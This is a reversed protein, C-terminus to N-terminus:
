QTETPLKTFHIAWGGEVRFEGLRRAATDAAALEDIGDDLEGYPEFELVMWFTQDDPLEKFPPHVASADKKWYCLFPYYGNGMVYIQDEGNWHQELYQAVPRLHQRARPVFLRYAAPIALGAVVILLVALLAQRGREWRSLMRFASAAGFGSLLLLGPVLFTTARGDMPYRGITAAALCLLTPLVLAGALLRKQSMWLGRVGAVCLALIVVGFPKAAYNCVDYVRGVMWVPATYWESLDLLGDDWYEYLMGYQQHRISVLYLIGFSIVPLLCIIACRVISGPTPRHMLWFSLALGGFVFVMTESFWLIAATVVALLLLRLWHRPQKAPWIWIALLLTTSMADSSYQKFEGAHILLTPGFAALTTVLLAAGPSLLKRALMALLLLGVVSCLMPLLRLTFESEGAAQTLLDALILFAPPATQAVDLAGILEGPSRRIVNYVLFSEDHWYSTRWLYQVLRCLVGAALILAFLVGQRALLWELRQGLPLRPLNEDACTTQQAM